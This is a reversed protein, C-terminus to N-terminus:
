REGELGPPDVAGDRMAKLRNSPERRGIPCCRVPDGDFLTGLHDVIGVDVDLGM